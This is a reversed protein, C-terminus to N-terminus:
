FYSINVNHLTFLLTIQKIQVCCMRFKKVYPCVASVCGLCMWLYSAKTNLSDTRRHHFM